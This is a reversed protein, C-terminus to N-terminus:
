APPERRKLLYLGWAMGAVYALPLLALLGVVTVWLRHGFESDGILAAVYPWTPEGIGFRGAVVTTSVTAIFVVAALFYATRARFAPGVERAM